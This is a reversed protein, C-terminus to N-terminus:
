INILTTADKRDAMRLLKIICSSVDMCWDWQANSGVCSVGFRDLLANSGVSGIPLAEPISTGDIIEFSKIFQMFYVGPDPIDVHCYFLYRNKAVNTVKYFAYSSDVVLVQNMGEFDLEESQIHLYHITKTPYQDKLGIYKVLSNLPITSICEHYDLRKGGIIIYHDGIESVQGLTLGTKIEKEYLEQLRQYLQNLRLDYVFHEMHSKMYVQSQSPAHQGFIKYLWSHCLEADFQKVLGGNISWAKKYMFVPGLTGNLQTVFPDTRADRVLYNDDLSPNYSFFRSKYYPIIAYSPGLIHRALLGILGSGLIYNM